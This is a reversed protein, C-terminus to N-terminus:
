RLAPSCRWVVRVCWMKIWRTSPYVWGKQRPWPEWLATSTHRDPLICSHVPSSTTHCWSSTWGAIAIAPGRCGACAWTSRRSEMRRTAWWTMQWFVQSVFLLSTLAPSFLIFEMGLNFFFLVFCHSVVTMSVKYSKPSFVRTPSAMLILYSYTLMEVHPREEGTPAARWPWWTHTWLWLLMRWRCLVCATM